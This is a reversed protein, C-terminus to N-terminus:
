LTGYWNQAPLPQFGAIRGGDDLNVELVPPQRGMAAAIVALGRGKGLVHGARVPGM